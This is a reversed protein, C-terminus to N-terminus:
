LTALAALQHRTFVMSQAETPTSEIVTKCTPCTVEPLQYTLKNGSENIKNIYAILTNYQDSDLISIIKSFNIIRSKATKKMNNQYINTRIPQLEM